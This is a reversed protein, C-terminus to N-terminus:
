EMKHIYRCVYHYLGNNMNGIGRVSLMGASNVRTIYKLLEKDGTRRDIKSPCIKRGRNEEGLRSLM